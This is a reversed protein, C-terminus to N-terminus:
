EARVLHFDFELQINDQVSLVSPVRPQDLGFDEFTFHTTATGTLERGETATGTVDWTTSHTVGHATLDGILQFTVAGSATLPADLGVIRKPVLEVSPYSNTELINNQIFRDRMSRDSRLGTINVVFKSEDSVLTTGDASLVLVGSIDSTVGIADSPLALSALQERVRYRAENGEGTLEFRIAGETSAPTSQAAPPSTPRDAATTPAATPTAAGGCAVLLGAILPLILVLYNKRSM